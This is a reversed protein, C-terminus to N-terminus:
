TNALNLEDFVKQLALLVILPPMHAATIKKSPRTGTLASHFAFLPRAGCIMPM